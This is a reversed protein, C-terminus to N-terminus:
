QFSDCLFSQIVCPIFVELLFIHHNFLKSPFGCKLFFLLSINASVSHYVPCFCLFSLSPFIILIYWIPFPLFIL